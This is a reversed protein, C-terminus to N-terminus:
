GVLSDVRRIEREKAQLEAKLSNIQNLMLLNEQAKTDTRKSELDRLELKKQLDKNSQELRQIADRCKKLEVDLRTKEITEGELKAQIESVKQNLITRQEIAQQSKMKNEELDVRVRQLVKKLDENERELREHGASSHLRLEKQQDLQNYLLRLEDELVSIQKRLKLVTEGDNLGITELLQTTEQDRKALHSRLKSNDQLLLDVTAAMRKLDGQLAVVENEFYTHKAEYARVLPDLVAPPIVFGERDNNGVFELM